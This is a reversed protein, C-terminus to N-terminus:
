LRAHSAAGARRTHVSLFVDSVASLELSRSPDQTKSGDANWYFTRSGDVFFLLVSQAPAGVTHLTFNRGSTLLGESDQAPASLETERSGAGKAAEPKSRAIAKTITSSNTASLVSFRRGPVKAQPAAAAAAPAQVQEGNNQHVVKKGTQQLIQHIAQLWSTVVAESDAQLDLSIGLKTSAITFCQADPVSVALHSMMFQPTQKGRSFFLSLLCFCSLRHPNFSSEFLAHAM